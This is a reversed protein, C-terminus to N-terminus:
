GVPKVFSAVSASFPLAVAPFAAVGAVAIVFVSLVVPVVVGEHCHPSSDSPVHGHKRGFIFCELIGNLKVGKQEGQLEQKRTVLPM